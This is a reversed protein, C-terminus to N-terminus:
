EHLVRAVGVGAYDPSGLVLWWPETPHAVARPLFFGFQAGGGDLVIAAGGELTPALEAAGAAAADTHFVGLSTGTVPSWALDYGDYSGYPAFVPTATSTAAGTADFRQAAFGAVDGRVEYWSAVVEHAAADAEVDTVKAFAIAGTLDTTGLLAGTGDGVRLLLVHAGDDRSQMVTVVFCGCGPDYVAAPQEVWVGADTLLTADGVPAGDAGLRRAHLGDQAWVVLHEGSDPSWTLAAPSEQNSGPDSVTVPDGDFVAAGDAYRVRRVQVAPGGGVTGHWSALFGGGDAVVRPNQAWNSGDYADSV